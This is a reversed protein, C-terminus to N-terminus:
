KEIVKVLISHDAEEGNSKTVHNTLTFSKIGDPVNGVMVQTTGNADFTELTLPVLGTVAWTSATITETEGLFLTYEAAEFEATGDQVKDGTVTPLAPETPGSIGNSSVPYYFGNFVAPLVVDKDSRYAKNAEWVPPKYVFGYKKKSDKDHPADIRLVRGNTPYVIM